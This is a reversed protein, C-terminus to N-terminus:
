FKLFPSNWISLKLGGLMTDVIFNLLSLNSYAGERACFSSYRSHSFWTCYSAMSFRTLICYLQMNANPANTSCKQMFKQPWIWNQLKQLLEDKCNAYFWIYTRLLSSSKCEKLFGRPASLIQFLVSVWFIVPLAMAPEM